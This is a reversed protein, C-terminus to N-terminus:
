GAAYMWLYKSSAVAVSVPIDDNWLQLRIKSTENPMIDLCSHHTQYM